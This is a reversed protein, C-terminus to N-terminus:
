PTDVIPPPDHRVTVVGDEIRVEDGAVMLGKAVNEAWLNAVSEDALWNRTDRQPRMLLATEIVATTQADPLEVLRWRHGHAVNFCSGCMFLRTVPDVHEAGGCECICLWRGADVQASLPADVPDSPDGLQEIELVAADKTPIWGVERLQQALQAQKRRLVGAAFMVPEVPDHGRGTFATRMTEIRESSM